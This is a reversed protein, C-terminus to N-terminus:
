LDVRHMIFLGFVLFVLTQVAPVLMTGLSSWDHHTILTSVQSGPFITKLLEAEPYRSSVWSIAFLLVIWLISAYTLAQMGSKALLSIVAMLATYPALVIILNIWVFFANSISDPILTPERIAVVVLTSILTLAIVLSQVAMMGFFRGLFLSSRSTHLTLLKLTGRTRDSATQDAAYIVCFIPFVYLAIFWHVGFEAVKWRAISLITESGLMSGISAGNQVLMPASRIITTLILLWVLAFACLSILGRRTILIRSLETAAILYTNRLTQM